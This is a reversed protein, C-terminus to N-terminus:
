HRGMGLAHKTKDLVSEPGSGHVNRDHSRGVKDSFEQGSSKSSDPQAGRAFKDTADTISEKLKTQTSKTSDPVMSEKAKDHFYSAASSLTETDRMMQIRAHQIFTHNARNCPTAHPLGRDIRNEDPNLGQVHDEKLLGRLDAKMWGYANFLPEYIPYSCRRWEGSHPCVTTSEVDYGFIVYLPALM